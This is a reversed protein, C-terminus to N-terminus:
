VNDATVQTIVPRYERVSAPNLIVMRLKYLVSPMYKAGLTSWMNGLRDGDISEMELILKNIGPDLQPTNAHDFVHNEQFFSIIFSLFRLSEGYNAATFYCSFLLYLHLCVPKSTQITVGSGTSGAPKIGTDRVMNVLTLLIKNEGQIAVSGDQNVLASLLVKDETIKLRSRFFTNMQDAICALSEYIM